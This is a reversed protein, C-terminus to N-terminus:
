ILNRQLGCLAGRDKQFTCTIGADATVTLERFLQKDMVKQELKTQATKCALWSTLEGGCQKCFYVAQGSVMPELEQFQLQYKQVFIEVSERYSKGLKSQGYINIREKKSPLGKLCM